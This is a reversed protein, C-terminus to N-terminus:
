RKFLIRALTHLIIFFLILMILGLGIIDIWRFGLERMYDQKEQGSLRFLKTLDDIRIRQSGLLSMDIFVSTPFVSLVTGKVPIYTYQDKERVLLFMSDYFPAHESHCAACVKEKRSKVSYDHHVKTIIISAGIDVEGSLKRQLDNYFDLLENSVIVGDANRDIFRSIRTNEGYAQALDGYTLQRQQGDKQIGFQFVMSKESRPSHCTSCELYKFHLQENPLWAHKGIYDKHCRACILLRERASLERYPTISHPNHCDTCRAAGKKAHITSEYVAYVKQHCNVCIAGSTKQQSIHCDICLVGKKGHVTKMFKGLDPLDPIFIKPDAPVEFPRKGSVKLLAERFTTRDTHCNRCALPNARISHVDAKARYRTEIRFTGKFAKNLLARLNDWEVRDIMNSRDVDVDEEKLTDGAGLVIEAEISSAEVRGHCSLCNLSKLHKERSPLGKHLVSAHCSACTKKGQDLFHVNHCTKCLLKRAEHVSGNFARVANQHCQGCSPRGLKENHPISQIDKHCDTCTATAHLVQKFGDHCDLCEEPKVQAGLSLPLMLLLLLIRIM